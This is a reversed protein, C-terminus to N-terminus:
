NGYNKRKGMRELFAKAEKTRGDYPNKTEKKSKSSVDELGDGKMESFANPNEGSLVERALDVLSKAEGVTSDAPRKGSKAKTADEAKKNDKSVSDNEKEEKGHADIFEKSKKSEKDTLGEPDTAGKAEKRKEMLGEFRTWFDDFAEKVKVGEIKSIEPTKDSTHPNDGGKKDDKKKDKKPADEEEDGDDESDADGEDGEDEEDDKEKKKKPPVPIPRPEEEEEEEEKVKKAENVKLFKIDEEVDKVKYKKGAVVFEDEGKDKAAKLAGTFANGEDKMAKSVAKRRKHLYEDSSDVDGDNDIDKDKRDAFKKKVAKPQVKDLGDGDDSKDNTNDENKAKAELIEEEDKSTSEVVQRYLDGLRKIDSTKM